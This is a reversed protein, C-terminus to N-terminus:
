VGEAWYEERLSDMSGLMARTSLVHMRYWLEDKNWRLARNIFFTGYIDRLFILEAEQRTLAGRGMLLPVSYDREALYIRHIVHEALDDDLFLPMFKEDDTVRQCPPLLGEYRRLDGENTLAAVKRLNDLRDGPGGVSARRSTELADDVLEDVVVALNAFHRYFTSRPISAERCLAAITIDNYGNLALLRLLADKIRERTAASRRDGAAKRSEGMSAEGKNCAEMMGYLAFARCNKETHLSVCGDASVM